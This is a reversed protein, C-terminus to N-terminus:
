EYCKGFDKALDKIHYHLVGHQSFGNIRIQGNIIEWVLQKNWEDVLLGNIAPKMHTIQPGNNSTFQEKGMFEVAVAYALDTNVPEDNAYLLSNQVSVWNNMLTHVTSFFNKALASTRWYTVANYVDPLQNADIIKRYKRSTATENRYNRCGTSVWVDYDRFLLWWHDFESTVITDAELKVTEHFPSHAYAQYDNLYGGLDEVTHVYDFVSDEITSSTILCIKADPHQYRLSKALTCACEVYNVDATNFAPIVYGRDDTYSM